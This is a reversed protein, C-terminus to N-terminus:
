EVKNIEREFNNEDLEVITSNYDGAGKSEHALEDNKISKMTQSHLGM